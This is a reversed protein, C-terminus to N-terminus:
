RMFRVDLIIGDRLWAGADHVYGVHKELLEWAFASLATEFLDRHPPLGFHLPWAVLDIDRGIDRKLLSGYLAVEYGAQRAAVFVDPLVELAEARTVCRGRVYRPAPITVDGPRADM